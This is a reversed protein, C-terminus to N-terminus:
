VSIEKAWRRRHWLAPTWSVFDRSTVRAAMKSRWEFSHFNWRIFLCVFFFFSCLIVKVCVCLMWKYDEQISKKERVMESVAKSCQGAGTVSQQLVIHVVQLFIQLFSLKGGTMKDSPPGALHHLPSRFWIPLPRCTLLDTISSNSNGRTEVNVLQSSFLNSSQYVNESRTCTWNVTIHEHSVIQLQHCSLLSNFWEWM